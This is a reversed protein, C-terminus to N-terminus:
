KFAYVAGGTPQRVPPPKGSHGASVALTARELYPSPPTTAQKMDDMTFVFAGCEEPPLKALGPYAWAPGTVGVKVPMPFGSVHLDRALKDAQQGPPEEGGQKSSSGRIHAANYPSSPTPLLSDSQVGDLYEPESLSHPLIFTNISPAAFVKQIESLFRGWSFWAHGHDFVFWDYAADTLTDRVPQQDTLDYSAWL